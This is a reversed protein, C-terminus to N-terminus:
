KANKKKARNYITWVTRQDRKLVGAIECYKLELEDKLYMVLSEYASFKEAFISIPIWYNIKKVIFKKPYKEGARNYIYWVNRQDRKIADSINKLSFEKNEKLYKVVSELATLEENFIVDPVRLEKELISEISGLSIGYKKKLPEILEKIKELRELDKVDFITESSSFDFSKGVKLSDKSM